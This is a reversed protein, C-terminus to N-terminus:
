SFTGYWCNHEEVNEKRERWNSDERSENFSLDFL